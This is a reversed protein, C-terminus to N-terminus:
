RTVVFRSRRTETGQRAVLWYLGGPLRGLEDWGISQAGAGVSTWRRRLVTRGQLDAVGLEIPADGVSTLAIRPSGAVPNPSPGALTFERGTEISIAVDGGAWGSRPERLRYCQLAGRRPDSDVFRWEDRAAPAPPGIETWGDGDVSREVVVDPEPARALLWTLEVSGDVWRASARLVQTAVPLDRALKQTYINSGGDRTDRWAVFINGLRDWTSYPQTQDSGALACIPEGTSPWGPPLSGDPAFRLAYVDADSGSRSDQWTVFCGDYGDHTPRFESLFRGGAGSVSVGLAPWLPDSVGISLVHNVRFENVTPAQQYLVTWAYAGGTGDAVVGAPNMSGLPGVVPYQWGPNPWLPGPHFKQLGSSQWVGFGFFDNGLGDADYDLVSFSDGFYVPTLDGSGTTDMAVLGTVRHESGGDLENAEYAYVIGAATTRSGLMSFLLLTTFTVAMTRGPPELGATYHGERDVRAASMDTYSYCYDV